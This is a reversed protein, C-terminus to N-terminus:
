KLRGVPYLNHTYEYWPSRKYVFELQARGDKALQEDKAVAADLEARLAPNEALYSAALDEFVYDSFHEKQQLIADFFNWAFFSDPGQPELMEVIYRNASQNLKVLWDGKRCLQKRKVTELQVKSHLYHGEYPTKGSEYSKIYYYELELTTDRSLREMKVGNAALREIVAPWAQPIIYASPAEVQLVPKYHKYYNVMKTFPKTRDYYLRPLGSVESPKYGHEFGKFELQEVKDDDVAWQLTFTKQQAVAKDATAKAQVLDALNVSLHEIVKEMFVYNSQLRDPFAKLMHTEPMFGITNFLSVYGTSFRPSDMFAYIGSEPTAGATYVYPIMPWNAAEMGKYLDPLLKDALYQGLSPQLKDQQTAILTMTYSYDAGNSTHNDVMLLPKWYHFMKTFAKANESDNKTFDRNLDLNKANARFGYAEPGNQNARSYSGRNLMGDINYTPVLVITFKNLVARKTEDMLIDRALMMSADIGEPEGPHIGNNILLVPQTGPQTGPKAMILAVLEKGCDTKGYSELWCHEPYRKSLQIYFDMMEEYTTTQAPNREYPTSLPQAEMRYLGVLFLFLFFHSIKM